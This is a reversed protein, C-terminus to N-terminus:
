CSAELKWQLYRVYEPDPPEQRLENIVPLFYHLSRVLNLPPAQPPRSLRRTAALAFAAEVLRLPVGQRYLGVALQRDARRVYGATTPTKRYAELLRQVYQAEDLETDIPYAKDLHSM